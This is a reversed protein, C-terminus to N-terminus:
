TKNQSRGCTDSAFCTARSKGTISSANTADRALTKMKM